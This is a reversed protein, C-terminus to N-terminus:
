FMENNRKLLGQFFPHPSEHAPCPKIICHAAETMKVARVNLERHCQIIIVM